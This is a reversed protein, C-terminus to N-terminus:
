CIPYFVAMRRVYCHCPSMRAHFSVLAEFEWVPARSSPHISDSINPSTPAHIYRTGDCITFAGRSTDLLLVYSTYWSGPIM